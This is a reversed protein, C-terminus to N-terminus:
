TGPTLPLSPAVAARPLRPHPVGPWTLPRLLELLSVRFLSRYEIVELHRAAM